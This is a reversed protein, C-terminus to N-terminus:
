QLREVDGHVIYNALTINAAFDTPRATFEPLSVLPPTGLAPAYFLMYQRGPEGLKWSEETYQFNAPAWCEVGDIGYRRILDRNEDTKRLRVVAILTYLTISEEPKTIEMISTNHIRRLCKGDVNILRLSEFGPANEVPAHYHVRLVVPRNFTFLYRRKNRASAFTGFKDSIYTGLDGEGNWTIMSSKAMETSDTQTEIDWEGPEDTLVPQSLPNGDNLQFPPRCFLTRCMFDSKALEVFSLNSLGFDREMLRTAIEQRIESQAILSEPSNGLYSWALRLLPNEDEAAKIQQRLEPETKEPDGRWSLSIQSYLHRLACIFVDIGSMNGLYRRESTPMFQSIAQRQLFINQIAADGPHLDRLVPLSSFDLPQSAM